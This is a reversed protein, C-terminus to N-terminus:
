FRKFDTKKFFPLFVRNKLMKLRKKASFHPARAPPLNAGGPPRFNGMRAVFVRNIQQMQPLYNGPNLRGVPEPPRKRFLSCNEHVRFIRKKQGGSFRNFFPM